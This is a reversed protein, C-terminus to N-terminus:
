KKKTKLIATGYTDMAKGYVEMANAILEVMKRM